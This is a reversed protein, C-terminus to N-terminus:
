SDLINPNSDPEDPYYCFLNMFILVLCSYRVLLQTASLDSILYPFFTDLFDYLAMPTGMSIVIMLNFGVRPYKDVLAKLGSFFRKPQM